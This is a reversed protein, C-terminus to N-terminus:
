KCNVQNLNVGNLIIEFETRRNQQQEAESCPIDDNCRNLLRTKGYYHIQIRNEAIGKAILYDKVSQGRRLSLTKNYQDTARSDTHSATLIKLNPYKNFLAALRELAPYSDERIQWKDLDYYINQVAFVNKLSDCNNIVYTQSAEPKYLKLTVNITSDEEIGITSISTNTGLYNSNKVSLDYEAENPLEKYFEGQANVNLTETKNNGNLLIQSQSLPLMTLADIVKGKLRVTNILRKFHYIDDNGNRNSSIFGSKEDDSRILGFDDASSNFPVGLNIPSLPKTNKFSLEFIDLGGLGPHGTSSFYLKGSKDFYPFLENGETNIKRGMNIPKGWPRTPGSRKSYYLDTGGYSGPMDSAFYLTNGDTSIAPHGVSYEDSNYPFSKITKWNTGSATYIKLKNIGQQSNKTKGKFFNNRTFMLSGEPLLVSPGEHYRSNVKGELLKVKAVPQEINDAPKQLTQDSPIFKNEQVDELYELVYLDTYPTQDWGFVYKLLAPKDRNSCFLLGGNYYIPSYESAQTNLNTYSLKWEGKDKSLNSVVGAKVFAATRQDSPVLKQYKRYWQESEEYRQKNALVEAYNLVWEPKVSAQKNLKGFWFLAEDYNRINRYSIAILEQASVNRPNKDLVETLLKIASVYRLSSYEVKAKKLLIDTNKVQQSSATQTLGQFLLFVLIILSVRLKM